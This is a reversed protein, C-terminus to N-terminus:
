SDGIDERRGGEKWGTVQLKIVVLGDGRERKKDKIKKSKVQAVAFIGAVIGIINAALDMLEFGRKPVFYQLIEILLSFLFLSIFTILFSNNSKQIIYYLLSSLIFYNIIHLIYENVFLRPLYTSPILNFILSLTTFFIFAFFIRNNKYNNPM